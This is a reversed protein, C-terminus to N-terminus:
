GWLEGTEVARVLQISVPSVEVVSFIWALRPTPAVSLIVIRMCRRRLVAQVLVAGVRVIRAMPRPWCLLTAQTLPGGGVESENLLM